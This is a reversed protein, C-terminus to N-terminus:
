PSVIVTTISMAPFNILKPFTGQYLKTLNNTESTEYILGSYWNLGTLEIEADLDTQTPNIVVVIIEDKSSNTYASVLLVSGNLIANIRQYGPQIFRSYNGFAWLRKTEFIQQSGTNIYLLGEKTDYKSVALGYQWASVNGITLDEHIARAMTIASEIGEDRAPSRDSWETTWIKLDPHNTSISNFFTIKQEISANSTHIAIEKLNPIILPDNLISALHTSGAGWGEVEPVLIRIDLGSAFILDQIEQVLLILQETMYFAGEQGFSLDWRKQPENVPSLWGIPIDEEQILHTVIDVLYKAFEDEKNLLLNPGGDPAGSVSGSLTLRPPPSFATAVIQDVGTNKVMHLIRLANEDRKWDYKGPFIEFSETNRWPDIIEGGGGAGINYRYSSLGIGENHDFLLVVVRQRNNVQWGGIEQAWWAGSVGFSDITQFVQNQHIVISSRSSSAPVISTPTETTSGQCGNAFVFVLILFINRLHRGTHSSTMKKHFPSEPDSM